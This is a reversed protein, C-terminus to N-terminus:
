SLAIAEALAKGNSPVPVYGHQPNCVWWEGHPASPTPTTYYYEGCVGVRRVVHRDGFTTKIIM